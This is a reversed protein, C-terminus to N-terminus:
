PSGVQVRRTSHGPYRIAGGSQIIARHFLGETAPSTLLYLVSAGGASEGFVTVQDPDGGFAAINRKVWRLAAIQDMLGFNGQPADLSPHAFFGFRGLRYNLSVMVVGDKAFPVGDYFPASSAGVRFAGGHIWVLVPLRGKVDPTWVNVFLCDEATAGVGMRRDQRVPQPCSAGFESADRPTAWR